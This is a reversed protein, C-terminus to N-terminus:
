RGIQSPGVEAPLQFLTCISPMRWRGTTSTLRCSRQEGAPYSTTLPVDLEGHSSHAKTGVVTVFEDVSYARIAELQDTQRLVLQHANDALKTIGM